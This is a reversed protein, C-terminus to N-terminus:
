DNCYPSRKEIERMIFGRLFRIPLKFLGFMKVLHEFYEDSTTNQYEFERQSEATDYWDLDYANVDTTFCEKRPSELSYISFLRSFFDM